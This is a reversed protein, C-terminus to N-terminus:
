TGSLEQTTLSGKEAGCAGFYVTNDKRRVIYFQTNAVTGVLPDIPLASLYQGVLGRLDVVPLLSPEVAPCAALQAQTGIIYPVDFVIDEGTTDSVVPHVGRHDFLFQAYAKHMTTLSQWRQEDRADAFRRPPDFAVFVIAILTFIIGAIILLELLSFGRSDHKM